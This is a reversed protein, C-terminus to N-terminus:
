RDFLAIYYVRSNVVLRGSPLLHVVTSRDGVSALRAVVFRGPVLTATLSGTYPEDPPEASVIVAILGEGGIFVNENPPRVTEEAPTLEEVPQVNEPVTLEPVLWGHEIRFPLSIEQDAVLTGLETRAAAEAELDGRLAIVTDEHAEIRRELADIRSWVPVLPHTCGIMALALLSLIPVGLSSRM